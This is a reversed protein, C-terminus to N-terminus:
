HYIIKVSTLKSIYLSIQDHLFQMCLDRDINSIMHPSFINNMLIWFLM